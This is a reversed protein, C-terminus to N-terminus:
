KANTKRTLQKKTNEIGFYAVENHTHLSLRLEADMARIYKLLTSFHVDQKLREFKSIVGQDAGMRKAIKAQSIKKSKRYLVLEKILKRIETIESENKRENKSM